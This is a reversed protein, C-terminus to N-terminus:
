RLLDFQFRLSASPTNSQGAVARVHYDTGGDARTEGRSQSAVLMWKDFDWFFRM